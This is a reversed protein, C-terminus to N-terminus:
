IRQKKIIELKGRKFILAKKCYYLIYEPPAM